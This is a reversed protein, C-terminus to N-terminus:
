KTEIGKIFKKYEVVRGTSDYEVWRGEREGNKYEGEEKKIGTEYYFTWKGSPTDNIFNGKSEPQGNPYYYDWEGENKDKVMNGVMEVQGNLRSIKFRGDKLGEKVYYEMIKKKVTDKVIGTYPTDSRQKYILGNRKEILNNPPKEDGCSIMLLLSMFLFFANLYNQM